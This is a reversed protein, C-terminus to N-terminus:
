PPEEALPEEIEQHCRRCYFTRPGRLTGTSVRLDEPHPCGPPGAAPQPPVADVILRIVADCQAKLALLQAALADFNM